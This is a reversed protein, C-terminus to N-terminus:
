GRPRRRPRIPLGGLVSGSPLRGHRSCMGVADFDLVASLPIRGIRDQQQDHTETALQDRPRLSEDVTQTRAAEVHDAVVITVASKRGLELSRGVDRREERTVGRRSRISNLVHCVVRAFEQGLEADGLSMDDPNRHAPHDGLRHHDVM